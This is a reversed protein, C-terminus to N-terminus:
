LPVVRHTDKRTAVPIGSRALHNLMHLITPITTIRKDAVTEHSVRIPQTHTQCVVLRNPPRPRTVLQSSHDVVPGYWPPAALVPSSTGRILFECSDWLPQAPNRM